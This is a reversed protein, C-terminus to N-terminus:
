FLTLIHESLEGIVEEVSEMNSGVCFDAEIGFLQEAQKIAAKSDARNFLFLTRGPFNDRCYRITDAGAMLHAKEPILVCAILDAKEFNEKTDWVVYEGAVDEPRIQWLPSAPTKVVWNVGQCYNARNHISRGTAKEFFFDMFRHNRYLELEHYVMPKRQCGACDCMNNELFTVGADSAGMQLALRTAIFTAGCGSSAGVVATVKKKDSM